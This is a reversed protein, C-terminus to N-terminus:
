DTNILRPRSKSLYRWADVFGSVTAAMKSGMVHSDSGSLLRLYQVIGPAARTGIGVAWLGYLIREPKSLYEMRILSENYAMNKQALDNYSDRQDEDFRSAIHHEVLIEPDYLLKWGQRRLRLCLAIEWHVQAGTGRLREDLRISRVVATRYSGNVGKLVDVYRAPGVGLHHSGTVRGFKPVIGVKSREGTLIRSGIHVNDRGGVGAVEPHEAFARALRACWDRHPAADDDTIAVIDAAAADIGANIAQVQGPIHVTVTRVPIPPATLGSLYEWTAHDEPRAVILIEDPLRDQAFLAEICRRLDDVRRYTPVLASVTPLAPSQM